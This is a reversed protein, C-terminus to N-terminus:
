CHPVVRKHVTVLLPLANSPHRTMAVPLWFICVPLCTLHKLAQELTLATGAGSNVAEISGFTSFETTKGGKGRGVVVEETRSSGGDM